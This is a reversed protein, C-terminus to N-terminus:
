PKAELERATLYDWPMRRAEETERAYPMLCHRWYGKKDNWGDDCRVVIAEYGEGDTAMVSARSQGSLIAKDIADRLAALAGASGIVFAADHEHHQPHIHLLPIHLLRFDEPKETTTM